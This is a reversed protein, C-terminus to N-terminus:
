LLLGQRRAYIAPDIMWKKANCSTCLLQLNRPWNTGGSAIAKIHDIHFKHGRFSIRCYACRNKQQERIREIDKATFRGEAQKKRSRRAHAIARVAERNQAAWRRTAARAKALNNSRHKLRAQRSAEPHGKRWKATAARSAAPDKARQRRMRENERERNLASLKKARITECDDCARNSTRRVTLHRHKCPRGTFYFMLGAARAQSMTMIRQTAEM